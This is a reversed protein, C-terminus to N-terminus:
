RQDCGTGHRGVFSIRSLLFGSCDQVMHERALRSVRADSMVQNVSVVIWGERVESKRRRATIRRNGWGGSMGLVHRRVNEYAEAERLLRDVSMQSGFGCRIREGDSMM